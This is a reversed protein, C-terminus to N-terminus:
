EGPRKVKQKAIKTSFWPRVEKDLKKWGKAEQTAWVVYDKALQLKLKTISLKKYIKLEGYSERLSKDEDMDWHFEVFANAVSEELKKAAILPVLFMHSEWDYVSVGSGPLLMAKPIGDKKIRQQAPDFIAPDVNKALFSDMIEKVRKKTAIEKVNTLVAVPDIKSKRATLLVYKKLRIIENKYTSEKTKMTIANTEKNHNDIDAKRGAVEETLRLEEQAQSEIEGGMNRFEQVKDDSVKGKLATLFQIIQNNVNTKENKLAGIKARDEPTLQRGLKMKRELVSMVMVMKDMKQVFGVATEGGPFGQILQLREKTLYALRDRAAKLRDEAGRYVEELERLKNYGFAEKYLSQLHDTLYTFQIESSEQDFTKDEEIEQLVSSDDPLFKPDILGFNVLNVENEEFPIKQDKVKPLKKLVTNIVLDWYLANLKEVAERDGPDKKFTEIFEQITAEDVLEEAERKVYDPVYLVENASVGAYNLAVEEDTNDTIFTLAKVVDELTRQACGMTNMDFTVFQAPFHEGYNIIRGFVFEKWNEQGVKAKQLLVDHPMEIPAARFLDKKYNFAFNIHESDLNALDDLKAVIEMGEASVSTSPKMGEEVVQPKYGIAQCIEQYEGNIEEFKQKMEGFESEITLIAHAADEGLAAGESKMRPVYLESTTVCGNPANGLLDVFQTTQHVTNLVARNLRPLQKAFGRLVHLLLPPKKMLFAEAAQGPIPMAHVDSIARIGNSREQDGFMAMEGFIAGKEQIVEITRTGVFVELKGAILIYMTKDVSKEPCVVDGPSFAQIGPKPPGEVEAAKVGPAAMFIRNQFYEPHYSFPINLTIYMELPVSGYKSSIKGLQYVLSQKADNVVPLDKEVKKAAAELAECANFFARTYNDLMEKVRFSLADCRTLSNSTLGLRGAISRSLNFGLKPNAMVNQEFGKGRINIVMVEAEGSARLSASRPERLIAGIEGIFSNPQDIEGVLMGEAEVQERTVEGSADNILAQVKGKRLVFIDNSAEGQMCLYEGPQITRINQPATAM